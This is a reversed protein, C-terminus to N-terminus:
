RHPGAGAGAGHIGGNRDRHGAPHDDVRHSGRQGFDLIKIRGDAALFLNEPKIDRHTIGKQHATALGRAVQIAYEVATRLTLRGRSLTGRLSEGELLETAIFPSGHHSGLEYVTLINPHNLSGAARAEREFRRLREPEAAVEEHLVKLAVDRDLREDRARFVVGMGGEGLREVVRYHAVTQGTLDAM